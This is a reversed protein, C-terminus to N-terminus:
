QGTHKAYSADALDPQGNAKYADALYQYINEVYQGSEIVGLFYTIAQQPEGKKLFYIGKNRYAWQNEPDRVISQNIDSLALNLSDMMLYTFGRNNLYYPDAPELKIATQIADLAKGLDGNALYAQNLTNWAEPKDSQTGTLALLREIAERHNGKLYALTALNVPVDPHNQDLRLVQEFASTAAMYDMTKTLLLGKMVFVKASDPFSLEMEAIENLGREYQHTAELAQIRNLQADWYVPQILLAQNYDLIAEFPREDQMKVVGRNNFARAFSPDIELAQTFYREAQSYEKNGLAQNGLLFFRDRKITPTDCAVLLTLLLPLLRKM